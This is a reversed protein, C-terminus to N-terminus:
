AKESDAEKSKSAHSYEYMWQFALEWAESEQKQYAEGDVSRHNLIFHAVEHFITEVRNIPKQRCITYPLAIISKGRLDVSPIFFGKGQPTPIIFLCKNVVRYVVNQPLAALANALIKAVPEDLTVHHFSGFLDLVEKAKYYGTM